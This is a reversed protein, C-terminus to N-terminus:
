RYKYGFWQCTELKLM